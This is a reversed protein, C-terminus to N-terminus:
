ALGNRMCLGRIDGVVMRKWASDQSGYHLDLEWIISLKDAIAGFTPSHQSLLAVEASICRDSALRELTRDRPVPPNRCENKAARYEGLALNWAIPNPSLTSKTM